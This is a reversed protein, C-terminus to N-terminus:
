VEKLTRILAENLNKLSLSLEWQEKDRTEVYNSISRISLHKIQLMKAAYIFGASEMTEIDAYYTNHLADSTTDTGTITNTTICTSFRLDPFKAPPDSTMWGDSDYPYKNSALPTNWLSTFSGDAEQIGLDVFRDKQIFTVDGLKLDRNFAGAIGINIILDFSEIGVYRALNFAVHVSGIGTVLTHIEHELYNYAYLGRSNANSSLYQETLELELTTAATVLIKM